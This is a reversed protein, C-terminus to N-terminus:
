GERRKEKRTDQEVPGAKIAENKDGREQYLAFSAMRALVLTKFVFRGRKQNGRLTPSEGAKM